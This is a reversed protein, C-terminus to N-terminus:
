CDNAAILETVFQVMEEATGNSPPELIWVHDLCSWAIEHGDSYEGEDDAPETIRVDVGDIEIITTEGHYYREVMPDFWGTPAVDIVLIQGTRSVLMVYGEESEFEPPQAIGVNRGAAAIAAEIGVREAEITIEPEGFPPADARFTKAAVGLNFDLHGVVLTEGSELTGGWMANDDRLYEGIPNEFGVTILSTAQFAPDPADTARIVFAMRPGTWSILALRDGPAAPQTAHVACDLGLVEAWVEPDATDAAFSSAAVDLSWAGGPELRADALALDLAAFPGDPECVPAPAETTATTSTSSTSTPTTTSTPTLTSTSAPTSTSTATTSPPGGTDDDGCAAALLSLTLLVSLLHRM